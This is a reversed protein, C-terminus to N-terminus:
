MVTSILTARAKGLLWMACMAAELASDAIQQPTVPIAPHKGVTDGSGTIAATIIVKVQM